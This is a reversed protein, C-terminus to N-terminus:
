LLNSSHHSSRGGSEQKITKGACWVVYVSAIEKKHKEKMNLMGRVDSTPQPEVQPPNPVRHHLGGQIRRRHSRGEGKRSKDVRLARMDFESQMRLLRCKVEAWIKYDKM